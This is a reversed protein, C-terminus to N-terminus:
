WTKLNLGEVAAFHADNSLLPLNHRIATAAIWIDNDPIPRGRTRLSHKISACEAAVEGDIEILQSIRVLEAIEDETQQRRSSGKAGYLLEALVIVPLAIGTHGMLVNRLARDKNFLAPIANTDLAILDGDM